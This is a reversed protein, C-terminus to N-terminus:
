PRTPASFKIGSTQARLFERWTEDGALEEGNSLDVSTSLGRKAPGKASGESPSSGDVERRVMRRFPQRPNGGTASQRTQATKPGPANALPQWQNGGSPEM